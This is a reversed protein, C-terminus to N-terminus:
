EVVTWDIIPKIVSGAHMDHIADKLQTVPYVKCLRDVPFQGRRHLDILQPIFEAPNADGEIVGILRKNELLFTLPDLQISADAPPVGVVAATGQPGIAAIMTEIIALRGTCDVAMTAGAGNPTIKRIADALPDAKKHGNAQGAPHDRGNVTHTAGLEKALALREPVIDVAIILMTSNPQTSKLHAAAMLAALGVSGMGFIILSDASTPKLVNLITGAGTQFGCGMPAYVALDGPKVGSGLESASCLKVVSKEQVVSVKSFSSQGFYQSRVTTAPDSKLRAPTSGDSRVAGHNVEPHRHCCALQGSTCAKCDGCTTFSLLVADGVALSKDKASSGVARIIGAGEHGFVAPFEVMPLLGQQLVIDTHCIGSYQMEVLVEDPRVEDLVIPTLAFDAKPENVVLAVTEMNTTSAM